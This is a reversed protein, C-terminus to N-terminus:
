RPPLGLPPTVHGDCPERKMAVAGVARRDEDQGAVLVHRDLGKREDDGVTQVDSPPFSIPMAIVHAGVARRSSSVFASVRENDENM